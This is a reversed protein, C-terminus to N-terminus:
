LQYRLLRHAHRASRLAGTMSFMLRFGFGLKRRDPSDTFFWEEALRIGPSWRELEKPDDIGWTIAAGTHRISPHRAMRSAAYASFADFALQSGPFRERLALVLARIDPEKLYMLLGEAVIMAPRGGGIGDMWQHDTVSSGRMHYSGSEPYFVRRLDIVDPYDVDYWDVSGDGTDANVRVVRSDLGCGLHLVLPTTERPQALYERTWADLQKARMLVTVRSKAPVHLGTFDYDVQDVIEIAKRDLLIPDAKRSELAKSFLPILLTAKEETLTVKEM